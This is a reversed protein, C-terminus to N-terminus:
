KTLLLEATNSKPNSRFDRDENSVLAPMGPMGMNMGMNMNMNMNIDGVMNAALTPDGSVEVRSSFQAM